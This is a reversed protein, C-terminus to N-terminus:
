LQMPDIFPDDLSMPDSTATRMSVDASLGLRCEHASKWAKEGDSPGAMVPANASLGGLAFVQM